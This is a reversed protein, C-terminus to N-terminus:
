RTWDGLAGELAGLCADILSYRDDDPCDANAWALCAADLFGFYGWLAYEHRPWAEVGLLERLAEVYRARAEGRVAVAEPPEMGGVLPSAWGQPHEAIYTLYILLTERVQERASVNGLRDVAERQAAALQEIESRVVAAYLQAKSGFYHFILAQSTAARRAIAAVSVTSYSGSAFAERAAKLIATKREEVDM